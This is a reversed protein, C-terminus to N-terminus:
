LSAKSASTYDDDIMQDCEKTFYDICSRLWYGRWTKQIMIAARHQRPSLIESYPEHTQNIRSAPRSFASVSSDRDMNKVSKHDMASSPTSLVFVTRQPTQILHAESLSQPSQSSIIPLAPRYRRRTLFGRMLAQLKVVACQVFENKQKYQHNMSILQRHRLVEQRCRYSRWVSQIMVACYEFVQQWKEEEEATAMELTREMTLRKQVLLPQFKQAACRRLLWRKVAGQICTAAALVEEHHREQTRKADRQKRMRDLLTKGRARCMCQALVRHVCLARSHQKRMWERSKAGRLVAMIKSSSRELGEVFQFRGLSQAFNAEAAEICERVAKQRRGVETQANEILRRERIWRQIYLVQNSFEYEQLWWREEADARLAAQRASVEWRACYCLWALQICIICRRLRLWAWRARVQRWKTQIRIAAATAQAYYVLM